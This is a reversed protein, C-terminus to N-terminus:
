RQTRPRNQPMSWWAAGPESRLSPRLRAAVEVVRRRQLRSTTEGRAEPTGGPGSGQRQDCPRRQLYGASRLGPPGPLPGAALFSIARWRTRLSPRPPGPLRRPTVDLASHGGHALFALHAVALDEDSEAIAFTIATWDATRDPEHSCRGAAAAVWRPGGPATQEASDPDSKGFSHPTCRITTPCSM